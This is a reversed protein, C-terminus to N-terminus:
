TYPLNLIKAIYTPPFLTFIAAVLINAHRGSAVCFIKRIRKAGRRAQVGCKRLDVEATRMFAYRSECLM